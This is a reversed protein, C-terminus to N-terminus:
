DEAASLVSSEPWERFRWVLAERDVPEPFVDQRDFDMRQTVYDMRTIATISVFPYGILRIGISETRTLSDLVHGDCSWDRKEKAFQGTEVNISKHSFLSLCM